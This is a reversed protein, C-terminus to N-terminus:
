RQAAEFSIGRLIGSQRPLEGEGAPFGNMSFIYALVDAVQQRSMTGPNELPMTIRTRNLMDALNVGNWASMFRGGRLAPAADFGDLQAGHCVSCEAAYALAGRTAQDASYVGDWSSRSPPMQASARWAAGVVLSGFVMALIPRPARM